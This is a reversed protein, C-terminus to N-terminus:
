GLVPWKEPPEGEMFDILARLAAHMECYGAVLHPLHFVVLGDADATVEYRALLTRFHPLQGAAM